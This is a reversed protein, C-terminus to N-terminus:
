KIQGSLFVTVHFWIVFMSDVQIYILLAHVFIGEWVPSREVELGKKIIQYIMSFKVSKVLNHIVLPIVWNIEIEYSQSVEEQSIVICMPRVNLNTYREYHDFCQVFLLHELMIRKCKKVQIFFNSQQIRGREKVKVVTDDKQPMNGKQRQKQCEKTEADGFRGNYTKKKRGM